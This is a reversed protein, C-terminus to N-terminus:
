NGLSYYLPAINEIHFREAREMAKNAIDNYYASDEKLRKCQIIIDEPKHAEAFCGDFDNKYNPEPYAITPIGFSGGNALKLPNKLKIHRSIQRMKVRNGKYISIFDRYCVQIDITQLFDSVEMRNKYRVKYKFELGIAALDKELTEPLAGYGGPCGIFGVTKVERDPRKIREYNCHHHPIFVVKNSIEKSACLEDLYEKSLSSSAIVGINPNERIFPLLGDGDVIDIYSHKPIKSVLVNTDPYYPPRKVWICVDNEYGDAPNANANIYNCIQAGRCKGSGSRTNFFISINKNVSEMRKGLGLKEM